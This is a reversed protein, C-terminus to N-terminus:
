YSHTYDYGMIRFEDALKGIESWDQASRSEIGGIGNITILDFIDSTKPLIAITLLKDKSHLSVSLDRIFKTFLDEDNAKIGEFDIDIGDYSHTVVEQTIQEILLTQKSPDNLVETLVSADNSGVTPILTTNNLKTLNIFSQDRATSKTELTGASSPYYWTPSLSNYLSTNQKYQNIGSTLDWNALWASTLISDQTIPKLNDKDIESTTSGLDPVGYTNSRLDSNPSNSEIYDPDLNNINSNQISSTKQFNSIKITDLIRYGIYRLDIIDLYNLVIFAGVTLFLAGGTKIYRTKSLM